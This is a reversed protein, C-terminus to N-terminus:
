GSWVERNGRRRKCNEPRDAFKYLDAGRARLNSLNRILRRAEVAQAGFPRADQTNLTDPQFTAGRERWRVELEEGKAGEQVTIECVISM